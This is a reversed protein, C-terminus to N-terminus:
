WVGPLRRGAVNLRLQRSTVAICRCPTGRWYRTEVVKRVRLIWGRGFLGELWGLLQASGRTKVLVGFNVFLWTSFHRQRSKEEGGRKGRKRMRESQWCLCLRPPCFHSKSHCLSAVGNATDVPSLPYFLLHLCIIIARGHNNQVGELKEAAMKGELDSFDLYHQCMALLHLFTEWLAEAGGGGWRCYVM